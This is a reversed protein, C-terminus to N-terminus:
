SRNEFIYRHEICPYVYAKALMDNPYIEIISCCGCDFRDQLYTLENCTKIIKARAALLPRYFAKRGARVLSDVLDHCGECLTSLDKTERKGEIIAEYFLLDSDHYKDKRDMEGDINKHHIDLDDPEFHMRCLACKLSPDIMLVAADHLKGASGRWKCYSCYKRSYGNYVEFRDCNECILWYRYFVKTVIIGHESYNTDYIHSDTKSDYYHFCEVKSVMEEETTRNFNNGDHAAGLM